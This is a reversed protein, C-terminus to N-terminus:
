PSSLLLGVPQAVPGGAVAAPQPTSPASHAAVAIFLEFRALMQMQHRDVYILYKGYRGIFNDDASPAPVSDPRSAGPLSKWLLWRGLRGGGYYMPPLLRPNIKVCINDDSRQYIADFNEATGDACAIAGRCDAVRCLVCNPGKLSLEDFTSQKPPTSQTQPPPPQGPPPTLQPPVATYALPYGCALMKQSRPNDNGIVAFRYLEYLRTLQDPDSITTYAWNQSASNQLGVTVTQPQSTSSRNRTKSMLVGMAGTVVTRAVNVSNTYPDTFTPAIQNATTATGSTINVQGPIAGDSDIFSALNELVQSSLLDDTKGALDLTNYNLQGSACGAASLVVITAVGFAFWRM